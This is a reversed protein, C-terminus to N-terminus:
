REGRRLLLVMHFSYCRRTYSAYVGKQGFDLPILSVSITNSPGHFVKQVAYDRSNWKRYLNKGPLVRIESYGVFRPRAAVAITATEQITSPNYPFDTSCIKRHRGAKRCCWRNLWHPRRTRRTWTPSYRTSSWRTKEAKADQTARGGADRCDSVPSSKSRVV